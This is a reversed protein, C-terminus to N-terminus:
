KADLNSISYHEAEIKIINKIPFHISFVTKKTDKNKLELVTNDQIKVNIDFLDKYGPQIKIEGTDPDMLAIVSDDKDYM